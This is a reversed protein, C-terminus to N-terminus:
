SALRSLESRTRRLWRSWRTGLPTFDTWGRPFGMLWEVFPPNLDLRFNEARDRLGPDSGIMRLAEAATVTGGLEAKAFEALTAARSLMMDQQAVENSRSLQAPTMPPMSDLARPTPWCAEAMKQLPLGKAWPLNEECFLVLTAANSLNLSLAKRSVEGVQALARSLEAPSLSKMAGEIAIPTPWLDTIQRHLTNDERGDSKSDFATPTRWSGDEEDTTDSYSSGEGSIPPASTERASCAGSRMSGSIPWPDSFTGWERFLSGQSTRWSSSAPDWTAFSAPSRRGSGGTTTSAACIEPSASRNARSDRLSSTWWEAFAQATSPRLTTGSLLATWPRTLWGRWSSPRRSRRESVTHWLGTPPGSRLGSASSSGELGPVYLWAM